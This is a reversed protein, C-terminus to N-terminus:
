AAKLFVQLADGNYVVLSFSITVIWVNLVGSQRLKASGSTPIEGIV